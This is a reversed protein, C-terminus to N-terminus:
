IEQRVGLLCYNKKKNNNNHQINYCKCLNKCYILYIMNIEGGRSSEKMGGGGTGPVSEIPIM